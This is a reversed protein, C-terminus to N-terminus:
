LFNDWIDMNYNYPLLIIFKGTNKKRSTINKLYIVSISDTDDYGCHLGKESYLNSKKSDDEVTIIPELDLLENFPIGLYTSQNISPLHNMDLKFTTNKYYLNKKLALMVIDDLFTVM